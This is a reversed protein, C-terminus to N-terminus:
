PQPRRPAGSPPTAPSASPSASAPPTAERGANVRLNLTSTSGAARVLKGGQEVLPYPSVQVNPEVYQPAVSGDDNLCFIWTGQSTAPTFLGDPEAQPIVGYGYSGTSGGYGYTIQEPNTLQTGGPIPYGISPCEFQIKGTYPSQVYSYTTVSTNRARYLQIMLDRQLSFDFYPPPQGNLYQNQQAQVRDRERTDATQTCAVVLVVTALCLTVVVQIPSADLVGRARRLSSTILNKM